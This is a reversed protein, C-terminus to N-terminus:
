RSIVHSNAQSCLRYAACLREPWAGAFGHEVVKGIPAYAHLLGARGDALQTCIGLHQPNGALRFLLIDGPQIEEAPIEDLQSALVAQLQQGDPRWGYDTRDFDLLQDGEKGKLNLAHAVAVLLGLCDVGGGAAPSLARGQHLFRTGLWTRAISIVSKQLASLPIVREQAGSQLLFNM